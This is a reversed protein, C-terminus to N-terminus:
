LPYAAVSGLLLRSLDVHLVRPGGQDAVQLGRLYNQDVADGSCLSYNGARDCHWVYVAMGAGAACNKTTDQL